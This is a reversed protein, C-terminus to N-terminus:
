NDRTWLSRDLNNVVTQNNYSHYIFNIFKVCSNRFPQQPSQKKAECQLTVYIHV